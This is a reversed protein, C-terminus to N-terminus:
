GGFANLCSNWSEVPHVITLIRVTISLARQRANGGSGDDMFVFSKERAVKMMTM